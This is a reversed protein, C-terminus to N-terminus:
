NITANSYKIALARYHNITKTSIATQSGSTHPTLKHELKIIANAGIRRASNILNIMASESNEDSAEVYNIEKYPRDCGNAYIDFDLLLFDLDIKKINQLGSAIVFFSVLTVIIAAINIPMSAAKTFYIATVCLGIVLISAGLIKYEKSKKTKLIKRVLSKYIEKSDSGLSEALKNAQLQFKELYDLPITKLQLM